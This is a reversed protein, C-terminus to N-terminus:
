GPCGSARSTPRSSPPSSSSRPWLRDCCAAWRSSSWGSSSPSSSSATARRPPRSTSRDPRPAVATPTRRARSPVRMAVMTERAASSGAGAPFSEALREGAAIAEPEKLFQDAGSLGTQIQSIGCAAVALFIVTVPVLGAPRKAVLDGVRRWFIQSDALGTQGVHPVKPWFVWRGFVVLAAPLVLLVFAAAVVVGVACALGLGRATPFLSLLLTLLGLVVTSASSIVAEATRRLTHAMADRRDETVWLEDRYRSSSCRMTPEPGSCWSPSSEWRPSTGCCTSRPSCTRPPWRPSRAATGDQAVAAPAGTAGPLSKAQEQVFALQSETLRTDSSYLVVAASGEDQPLGMRLEAAALSDSGLPLASTASRPQEAQGVVGIM